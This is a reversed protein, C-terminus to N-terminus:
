GRSVRSIPDGNLSLINQDVGGAGGLVMSGGNAFGPLGPGFPSPIPVPVSAAAGGGFGGFLGGLASTLPQTIFQQTAINLLDNALSSLADKASSVGTIFNTFTNSITSSLNDTVKSVNEIGSELDVLSENTNVISNDIGDFLTNIEQLNNLNNDQQGAQQSPIIAPPAVTRIAEQERSLDALVDDAAQKIAATDIGSTQPGRDGLSLLIRDLEEDSTIGVLNKLGEFSAKIGSSVFSNFEKIKIIAKDILLIIETITVVMTAQIEDRFIFGAAGAAALAAVFLGLPNALLVANFTAVAASAIGTALAAGKTALIYGGLAATVLGITKAIIDLNDAITLLSESLVSTFAKVSESQGLFVTLKNTLVTFAEGTKVSLQDAQTNLSDFAPIIASTVVDATILGDAALERLEGRTVGLQDALLGTLVANQEAVSNFEDGRLAGAALGQALQISANAAEQTSAGAIRFTQQIGQVLKSQEEFSLNLDETAIKFRTYIAATESISQRTTNSIREVESFAFTLEETSNTVTKLRNNIETFSDGVQAIKRVTAISFFAVFATKLSSMGRNLENTSRNTNRM